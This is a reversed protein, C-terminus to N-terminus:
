ENEDEDEPAAQAYEEFKARFEEMGINLLLMRKFVQPLQEQFFDEKELQRVKEAADAAVFYGVGRKNYIIGKDQMYNYSHAVTNPNVEISVAMDRVSPIRDNERWKEALVNEMIHDAIQLYIARDGKFIM